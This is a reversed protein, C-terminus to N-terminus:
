SLICRNKQQNHSQLKDQLQLKLYETFKGPDLDTNEVAEYYKEVMSDNNFGILIPQQGLKLLLANMFLRATRGNCDDFPHISVLTHHVFAAIEILDSRCNVRHLLEKSFEDIMKEIQDPSPCLKFITKLTDLEETTLKNLIHHHWQSQYRDWSTRDEHPYKNRFIADSKIAKAQEVIWNQISGQFYEQQLYEANCNKFEALQKYDDIEFLKIINLIKTQMVTPDLRNPDFYIIYKLQAKLIKASVDIGKLAGLFMFFNYEAEFIFYSTANAPQGNFIFQKKRIDRMKGLCEKSIHLPKTRFGIINNDGVLFKHTELIINKININLWDQDLFNNTLYEIAKSRNTNIIALNEDEKFQHLDDMLIQNPLDNLNTQM